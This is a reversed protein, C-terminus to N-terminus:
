YHISRWTNCKSPRRSRPFRQRSNHWFGTVVADQTHSPCRVMKSSSATHHSGTCFLVTSNYFQIRYIDFTWTETRSLRASMMALMPPPMLLPLPLNRNKRHLRILPSGRFRLNEATHRQRPWFPPHTSRVGSSRCRNSFQMRASSLPGM